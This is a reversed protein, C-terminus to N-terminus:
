ACEVSQEHPHTDGTQMLLVPEAAKLCKLGSTCVEDHCVTRDLSPLCSDISRNM